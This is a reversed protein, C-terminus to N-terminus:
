VEFSEGVFFSSQGLVGVFFSSALVTLLGTLEFLGNGTPLFDLGILGLKDFVIVLEFAGISGKLDDFYFSDILM